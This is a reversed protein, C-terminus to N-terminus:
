EKVAWALLNSTFRVQAKLMRVVGKQSKAQCGPSSSAYAEARFHDGDSNGISPESILVGGCSRASDNGIMQLLSSAHETSLGSVGTARVGVSSSTITRMRAFSEPAKLKRKSRYERRTSDMAARM